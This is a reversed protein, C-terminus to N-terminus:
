EKQLTVGQEALEEIFAETTYWAVHADVHLANYGDPHNGPKDYLVIWTPDSNATLGPVYVYGNSDDPRAPCVMIGPDQLHEEVFLLALDEPFEEAHDAAYMHVALGIQKLNNKCAASRAHVRARGLAPMLLVPLVILQLVLFASSLAIGAIALGRGTVQGASRNIQRLGVIGLIIGPVTVIFGCLIGCAGLVLSAIALGSTKGAVVPGQAEPLPSACFSCFRAGEPNDKGCAKCIM